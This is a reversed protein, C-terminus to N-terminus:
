KMNYLIKVVNIVNGFRLSFICQFDVKFINHSFIPNVNIIPKKIVIVHKKLRTIMLTKVAWLIGTGIGTIEADESGYTTKWYLQECHFSKLIKNMGRCYLLTYYHVRNVVRQLKRPHLMYFKITKKIFRQERKIHTEDQNNGAKIKSTLWFSSKLDGIEIIPMQMSYALLRKFIYVDIAIYDNSGERRYKLAIYIKSYFLLGTIVINALMIILWIEL